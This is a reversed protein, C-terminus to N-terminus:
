SRGARKAADLDRQTLPAMDLQGRLERIRALRAAPSLRTPMLAAELCVIAESNLSRRNAAAAEKLRAHLADPIDKLTLTVPMALSLRKAVM